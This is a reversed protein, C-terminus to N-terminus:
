AGSQNTVANCRSLNLREVDFHNHAHHVFTLRNESRHRLANSRITSKIRYRQREASVSINAITMMQCNQGKM